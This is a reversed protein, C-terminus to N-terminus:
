RVKEGQQDVGSQHLIMGTVNGSADKTFSVQADVARLFFETESEPFLGFKGQGTPQGFLAGDELTVVVLFGPALEYEGVYTELIDQAVEVEIRGGTLDPPDPVDSSIRRGPQNAGNQHLILGTVAGTDDKTFSVQADVVRLFFTTESEAFMPFKPQATAQLFLAGAELTVVISFTPALEYEGVYTELIDEAVTVEIREGRPVPVPTLPIERNLLHLGIDDAGHGSNTLVVVGVGKDPDFGIFTRFGATGGNHWLIKEDGVNRILWNLGISGDPSIEERVEHSTRMSRELQSQPPGINAAVFTLMDGVDSRLAGAGALTPLDWLPVVDGETNHGDAMWDRMDGELTIGTMSMGLPELIRERVVEEYSGGGARALVHGLLGVGLNSYEFESGIDRRLEHGSLFTYLQEVTYDAYPNSMDAPSLNNPLRPLGSHQTSLDLLTIERGGRSPMTVEDPLYESVPDSFSVEGRAVMDALLTATFVKTISGIEFVSEAGLPRANAGADGYAVIRTSGDAEVVGLVIGVARGEEVRSRILASLDEDSPFHQAGASGPLLLAFACLVFTIRVRMKM